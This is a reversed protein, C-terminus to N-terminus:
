AWLCPTCRKLAKALKYHHHIIRSESSATDTADTQGDQVHERAHPRLSLITGFRRQKNHGMGCSYLSNTVISEILISQM